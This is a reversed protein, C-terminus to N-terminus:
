ISVAAVRPHLVPFPSADNLNRQHPFHLIREFIEPIDQEAFAGSYRWDTLSGDRDLTAEISGRRNTARGRFRVEDRSVQATYTEHSTRRLDEPIEFGTYSGHEQKWVSAEQALVSIHAEIAREQSSIAKSEFVVVGVLSFIGIIVMIILLIALASLVTGIIGLIMGARTLGEDMREMSGERMRRLDTHGMVWAPIGTLLGFMVLSLTGLVLILAGRGRDQHPIQQPTTM